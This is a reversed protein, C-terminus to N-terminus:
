CKKNEMAKTLAVVGARKFKPDLIKEMKEIWKKSVWNKM